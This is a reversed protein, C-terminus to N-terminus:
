TERNRNAEDIGDDIEKSLGEAHKKVKLLRRAEQKREARSMARIEDTVVIAQGNGLDMLEVLQGDKTKGHMLRGIM